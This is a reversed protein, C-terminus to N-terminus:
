APVREVNYDTDPTPTPVDFRANVVYLWHRFHDVTTPTDFQGPATIQREIEGQRRRLDRLYGHGRASRLRSASLPFIYAILRM